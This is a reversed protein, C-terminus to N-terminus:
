QPATPLPLADGPSKFPIGSVDRKDVLVYLWRQDPTGGATNSCRLVKGNVPNRVGDQFQRIADLELKRFSDEGPRPTEGYIACMLTFAPKETQHERRRRELDNTIGIYFQSCDPKMLFAKLVDRLHGIVGEYDVVERKLRYHYTLKLAM